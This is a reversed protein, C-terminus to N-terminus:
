KSAIHDELFAVPITIKINLQIGGVLGLARYLTCLAAPIISSARRPILNPWVSTPGGSCTLCLIDFQEALGEQQLKGIGSRTWSVCNEEPRFGKTPLPVMELLAQIGAYTVENPIKGIMVRGLIHGSLAPDVNDRARFFWNLEPNHDVRTVPNPCAADTVDYSHCNKEEPLRPLFLYAGTTHLM